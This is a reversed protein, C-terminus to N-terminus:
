IQVIAIVIERSLHSADAVGRVRFDFCDVFVHPEVVGLVFEAKFNIVILCVAM